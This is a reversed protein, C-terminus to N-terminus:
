DEQYAKQAQENTLRILCGPHLRAELPIEEGDPGPWIENLTVIENSAEISKGCSSCRCEPMGLYVPETFWELKAKSAQFMGAEIFM